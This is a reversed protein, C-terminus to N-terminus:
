RVANPISFDTDALSMLVTRTMIKGKQILIRGDVPHLIPKRARKGVLTMLDEQSTVYRAGPLAIAVSGGPQVRAQCALRSDPTANALRGLTRHERETRATLHQAGSKVVVHCTACIGREGCARLMDHGLSALGDILRGPEAVVMADARKRIANM